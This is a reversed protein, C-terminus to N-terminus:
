EATEIFATTGTNGEPDTVLPENAVTAQYIGKTTDNWVRATVGPGSNTFDETGAFQNKGRGAISVSCENGVYSLPSSPDLWMILEDTDINKRVPIM